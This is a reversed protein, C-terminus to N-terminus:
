NEPNRSLTIFVDEDELSRGNKYFSYSIFEGKENKIRDVIMIEDKFHHDLSDYKFSTEVYNRPTYKSERFFRSQIDYYSKTPLPVTKLFNDVLSLLDKTNDPPNTIIFAESYSNPSNQVNNLLTVKYFHPERPRCGIIIFFIISLIILYERKVIMGL